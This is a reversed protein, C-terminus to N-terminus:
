TPPGQNEYVGMDGSTRYAAAGTVVVPLRRVRQLSETHSDNANRTHIM